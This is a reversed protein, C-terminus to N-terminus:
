QGAPRGCSPCFNGYTPYKTGCGACFRFQPAEGDANAQAQEEMASQMAANAYTQLMPEIKTQVFKKLPAKAACGVFGELDMEEGYVGPLIAPKIWAEVRSSNQTIILKVFMPATLWGTGKQFFTEGNHEKLKYGNSTLVQMIGNMAVNPDGKFAFDKSYRAM